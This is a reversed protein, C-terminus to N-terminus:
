GRETAVGGARISVGTISCWGEQDAAIDTATIPLEEIFSIKFMATAATDQDEKGPVPLHSLSDANTHLKTGKYEIEYAYASLFIAWRQM